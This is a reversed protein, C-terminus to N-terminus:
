RAAHKEGKRYEWSGAGARWEIFTCAEDLTKFSAMIDVTWTGIVCFRGSQGAYDRVVWEGGTSSRYVALPRYFGPPLKEGEGPVSPTAPTM